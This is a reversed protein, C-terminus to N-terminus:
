GLFTLSKSDLKVGGRGNFKLHAPIKKRQRAQAFKQPTPRVQHTPRTGLIVPVCSLRKRCQIADLFTRLEPSSQELAIFIISPLVSQLLLLAADCTEEFLVQSDLKGLVSRLRPWENRNPSIVLIKHM